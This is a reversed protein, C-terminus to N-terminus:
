YKVKNVYNVIFEDNIETNLIDIYKKDNICKLMLNNKSCAIGQLIYMIIKNKNYPVGIIDYFEEFTNQSLIFHFKKHQFNLNSEPQKLWLILQSKRNKKSRFSLIPSLVKYGHAAVFDQLFGGLKEYFFISRIGTLFVIPYKTLLCNPRLALNDTNM